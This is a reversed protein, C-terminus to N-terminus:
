KRFRFSPALIHFAGRPLVWDTGDIKVSAENADRWRNLRGTLGARLNPNNNVLPHSRLKVRIGTGENLNWLENMLYYLGDM